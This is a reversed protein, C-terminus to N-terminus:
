RGVYERGVKDAIIKKVVKLPKNKKKCVTVACVETANDGTYVVKSTDVGDYVLIAKEGQEDSAQRRETIVKDNYVYYTVVAGNITNADDIVAFVYDNPLDTNTDNQM